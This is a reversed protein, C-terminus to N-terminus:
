TTLWEEDVFECAVTVRQVTLAANHFIGNQTSSSLMISWRWAIFSNKRNDRAPTRLMEDLNRGFEGFYSALCGIMQQDGRKEGGDHMM